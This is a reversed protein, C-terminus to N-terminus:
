VASIKEVQLAEGSMVFGMGPMPKARVHVKQDKLQSPINGVLTYTRGDSCELQWGGAGLDVYRLIGTYM